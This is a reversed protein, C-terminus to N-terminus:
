KLITHYIRYLHFINYDHYYFINKLAVKEILLNKETETLKMDKSKLDEKFKNIENKTLNEQM